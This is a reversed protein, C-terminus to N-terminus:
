FHERLESIAMRIRTKVTGLPLNLQDAIEVHTYGKFYVMDLLIHFDPKLQYVLEKILVADTNYVINHSWNITPHCDDININKKDNRYKKSRLVDIASNRAINIMWTFLRGKSREYQEVSYWIKMFTEQVIDEAIDPEVLIRSIVSLLTGSYMRYLAQLAVVEHDKLALVLEDESSFKRKTKM